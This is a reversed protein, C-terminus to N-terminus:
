YIDNEDREQIDGVQWGNMEITYSPRNHTYSCKIINMPVEGGQLSYELIDTFCLDILNHDPAVHNWARHGPFREVTQQLKVQRHLEDV